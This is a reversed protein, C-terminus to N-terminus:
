KSARRRSLLGLAGLAVGALSAPEPVTITVFDGYVGAANASTVNTQGGPALPNPDDKYFTAFAAAGFTFAPQM